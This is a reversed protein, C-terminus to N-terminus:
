APEQPMAQTLGDGELPLRPATTSELYDRLEEPLVAKAREDMADAFEHALFRRSEHAEMAKIERGLDEAAARFKAFAQELLPGHYSTYARWDERTMDQPNM